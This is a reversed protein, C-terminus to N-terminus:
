KNIKDAIARVLRNVTRESCYLEAAIEANTIGRRKYDLVAKEEDTLLFCVSKYKALPICFDFKRM